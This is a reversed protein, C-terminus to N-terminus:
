PKEPIRLVASFPRRPIRHHVDLETSPARERSGRESHTKVFPWTLVSAGDVTWFIVRNHTCLFRFLSLSVSLSLPLPFAFPPVRSVQPVLAFYFEERNEGLEVPTIERQVEKSNRDLV